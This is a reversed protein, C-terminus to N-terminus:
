GKPSNEYFCASLDTGPIYHIVKLGFEAAAKVNEEFDDIFLTEEKNMNGLTLVKGFSSSLPKRDGIVHSYFSQEFLSELDFGHTKKFRDLFFSIHIVNTNSFLFLRYGAALKQLLSIKEVPINDLMSCWAEDIQPDSVLPNGLIERIRRRFEDPTAKGTEFAKFIPDQIAHRYDFGASNKGLKEFQRVPVTFDLDLLVGGLDFIINRIGEPLKNQMASITLSLSFAKLRLKWSYVPKRFFSTIHQVCDSDPHFSNM